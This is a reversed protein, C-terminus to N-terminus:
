GVSPRTDRTRIPQGFRHRLRRPRGGAPRWGAETVTGSLRRPIVRLTAYGLNTVARFVLRRGEGQPRSQVHRRGDDHWGADVARCWGTRSPRIAGDHRQQEPPGAVVDDGRRCQSRLASGSRKNEALRPRNPPALPQEKAAPLYSGRRTSVWATIRPLFVHFRGKTM